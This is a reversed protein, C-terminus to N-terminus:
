THPVMALAKQAAALFDEKSIPKKLSVWWEPVEASPAEMGTSIYVLPICNHTMPHRLREATEGRSEALFDDDVVLLDPYNSAIANVLDDADLTLYVTHGDKELASALAALDRSVSPCVALALHEDPRGNRRLARALTWRVSEFDLPKQLVEWAGLRRALEREPEISLVIVPIEATDPSNKLIRLVDYGSIDPLLLDLVVVSPRERRALAVGQAGTQADVVEYGHRDLSTRLVVRADPDDEILLVRGRSALTVEAEEPLEEEVRFISRPLFFSFMAGQGEESEVWIQGGHRAIIARSIALGLGAGADAGGREARWFREFVHPQEAIPIGPGPDSVDVQVGGDHARARLQVTSGSPAYKIANSLLSTLVQMIRERDVHSPPLNDAVDVRVQVNRDQCEDKVAEVAGAILDGLQLSSFQFAIRGQELTNIDLLDNVLRILREANKIGIKLLQVDASDLAQARAVVLQLSGRLSTLPTRLEHSVTALFDSKLAEFRREATVDRMIFLRGSGFGELGSLVRGAWCIQRRTARTIVVGDAEESDTSFFCHVPALQERLEVPLGFFAGPPSMAGWPQDWVAEGARELLEAATASARLVNGGMDTIVLGLGVRGLLDTVSRVLDEVSEAAGAVSEAAATANGRGVRPAHRRRHLLQLLLVGACLSTLGGWWLRGTLVGSTWLGTLIGAGMTGVTVGLLSVVGARKGRSGRSAGRYASANAISDTVAM